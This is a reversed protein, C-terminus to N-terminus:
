LLEGNARVRRSLVFGAMSASSLTSGISVPEPRGYYARAADGHNREFIANARADTLHKKRRPM